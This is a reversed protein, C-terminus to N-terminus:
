GDSKITIKFLNDLNYYAESIWIEGELGRRCEANEAHFAKIKFQIGIMRDIWTKFGIKNETVSDM